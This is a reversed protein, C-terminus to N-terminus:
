FLIIQTVVFKTPSAQDLAKRLQGMEQGYLTKVQTVESIHTEEVTM